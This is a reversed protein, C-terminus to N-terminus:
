GGQRPQEPLTAGWEVVYVRHRASAGRGGGGVNKNAIRKPFHERAYRQLEREAAAVRAPTSLWVGHIRRAGRYRLGLRDFYADDCRGITFKGAFARVARRLARTVARIEDPTLHHDRVPSRKM